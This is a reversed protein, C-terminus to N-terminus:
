PNTKTFCTEYHGRNLAWNGLAPQGTGDAGSEVLVTYSGEDMEFSYARGQKPCTAPGPAPYSPCLRCPELEYIKTTPGVMIVRLPDPSDNFFNLVIKRDSRAATYVPAALKSPSRGAVDNLLNRAMADRFTDSWNHGVHGHLFTNYTKVASPYDGRSEYMRGCMDVLRPYNQASAEELLTAGTTSWTVDRCFADGAVREVPYGNVIVRMRAKATEALPSDAYTTLLTFYSAAADGPAGAAEQNLAQQYLECQAKERKSLYAFSRLDIARPASIVQDFEPVARACDLEVLAAHGREYASADLGDTFISVGVILVLLVGALLIWSNSGKAAPDQEAASRAATGRAPTGRAATSSRAANTRAEASRAAAGRAVLGQQKGDNNM